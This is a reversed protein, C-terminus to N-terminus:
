FIDCIFMLRNDNGINKTSEGDKSTSNFNGNNDHKNKNTIGLSVMINGSSPFLCLIVM